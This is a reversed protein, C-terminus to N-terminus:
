TTATYTEHYSIRISQVALVSGRPVNEGLTLDRFM